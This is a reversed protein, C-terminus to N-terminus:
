EQPTSRPPNANRAREFLGLPIHCYGGPNNELYNQHYDEAKYFNKLPQNEVEVPDLYKKSVQELANEIIKWDSPDTYYIGTRYQTGRDNGQRNLSTPDITELYLSILLELSVERPDYVVRVTEAHGTRGTCVEEYTPYATSGNAYGVETALVGRIQKMFHETGWFCGGAFYIEKTKMKKRRNYELATSSLALVGAGFIAASLGLIVKLSGNKKM